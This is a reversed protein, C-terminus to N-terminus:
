NLIGDIAYDSINTEIGIHYELDFHYFIIAKTFIQRLYIFAIKAEFILFSSKTKNIFAILTTKLM